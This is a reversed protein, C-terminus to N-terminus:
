DVSLGSPVVDPRGLPTERVTKGTLAHLFEVLDSIAQPELRLMERVDDQILLDSAVLWPVDPMSADAMTWRSLADLPNLHHEVMRTLERYAGNHGYPGTLEVNRLSPTRFRYRDLLDDSENLHGMDRPLLDFLRTRGPGYPPLALAHFKQDTLLPGSHCASCGAEGYFLRMGRTQAPSMANSNGALYDDFSSDFSQWELGIFTSAIL